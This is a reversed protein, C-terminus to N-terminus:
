SYKPIYKISRPDSLFFIKIFLILNTIEPVIMVLLLPIPKSLSLHYDLELITRIQIFGSNGVSFVRGNGISGTKSCYFAATKSNIVNEGKESNEM